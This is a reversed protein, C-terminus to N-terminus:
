FFPPNHDCMYCLKLIIIIIKRKQCITILAYKLSVLPINQNKAMLYFLTFSDRYKLLLWIQGSCASDKFLAFLAQPWLWVRVSDFGLHVAFLCRMLRRLATVLVLTIVCFIMSYPKLESPVQLFSLVYAKCNIDLSTWKCLSANFALHEWASISGLTQSTQLESSFEPFNGILHGSFFPGKRGLLDARRDQTQGLTTCKHSHSNYLLIAWVQM